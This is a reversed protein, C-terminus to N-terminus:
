CTPLAHHEDDSETAAQGAMGAREGCARGNPMREGDGPVRWRPLRMVGPALRGAATGASRPHVFFTATHNVASGGSEGVTVPGASGYVKENGYM